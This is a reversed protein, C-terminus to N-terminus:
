PAPTVTGADAIWSRVDVAIAALEALATARSLDAPEYPEGSRRDLVSLVGAVAPGRRLPLVMMTHPVYGTGEAVDAAFRPDRRCAAIAEAEGSAAVAGAVGTGRPLRRGLIEDAGAGWAAEYVLEDSTPDRLAISVAAAELAGAAARVLAELLGRPATTEQVSRALSAGRDSAIEPGGLAGLAAALARASPIRRAPDLALGARLAAVLREDGDWEAGYAPPEGTLLSWLTAALGYVDSRPSAGGGALVEPAVYGPTGIGVTQTGRLELDRAIGFDVLVIGAGGAILNAPKVDRHVVQQEHVYALAECAEAVHGIAADPDLGAGGREALMGALSPGRVLDMVLFSGEDETFHDRVRVVRPHRLQALLRAEIDFRAAGRPDLLRKVAVEEGTEDNRARHVRGMSGRSIEELLTYRGGIREEDSM